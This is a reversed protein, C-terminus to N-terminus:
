VKRPQSSPHIAYPHYCAPCYDVIGINSSQLEERTLRCACECGSCRMSSFQMELERRRMSVREEELKVNTEWKQHNLLMEERRLGMEAQFRKGEPTMDDLVSGPLGLSVVSGTESADDACEEYEAKVCATDDFLDVEEKVVPIEEDFVSDDQTFDPLYKLREVYELFATWQKGSRKCPLSFTGSSVEHVVTNLLKAVGKPTPMVYSDKWEPRRLLDRIVIKGTCKHIKSAEELLSCVQPFTWVFSMREACNEISIKIGQPREFSIDTQPNKRLLSIRDWSWFGDGFWKQSRM